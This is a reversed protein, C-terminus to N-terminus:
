RSLAVTLQRFNEFRLRQSSVSKKLWDRSWQPTNSEHVTRQMTENERKHFTGAFNVAHLRPRYRHLVILTCLTRPRPRTTVSEISTTLKGYAGETNPSQLGPGFYNFSMEEEAKPFGRFQLSTSM